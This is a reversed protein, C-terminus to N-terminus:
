SMVAIQFFAVFKAYNYTNFNNDMRSITRAQSATCQWPFLMAYCGLLGTEM